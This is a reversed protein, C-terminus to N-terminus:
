QEWSWYSVTSDKMYQEVHKSKQRGIKSKMYILVLLKNIRTSLAHIGSNKTEMILNHVSALQNYLGLKKIM